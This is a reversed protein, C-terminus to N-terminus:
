LHVKIVHYRTIFLPIQKFLCKCCHPDVDSRSSSGASIIHIASNINHQRMVRKIFFKYFIVNHVKKVLCHVNLHPTSM